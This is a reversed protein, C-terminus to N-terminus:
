LPTTFASSDKLKKIIQRIETERVEEAPADGGRRRRAEEVGAESTGGGDTPCDPQSNRSFASLPALSCLIASSSAEKSRPTFLPKPWAHM